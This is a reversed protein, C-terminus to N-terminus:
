RLSSNSRMESESSAPKNKFSDDGTKTKFIIDTTTKLIAEVLSPADRFGANFSKNNDNSKKQHRTL